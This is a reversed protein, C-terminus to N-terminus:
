GRLMIGQNMSQMMKMMNAMKNDTTDSEYTEVEEKPRTKMVIEITGDGKNTLETLLDINKFSENLQKFLNKAENTKDETSDDFAKILNGFNFEVATTDIENMITQYTLTEQSGIKWNLKVENNKQSFASVGILLGILLTFLKNM